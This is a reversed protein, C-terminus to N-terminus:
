LLWMIVLSGISIWLEIDKFWYSMVNGGSQPLFPPYPDQSTTPSANSSSSTQGTFAIPPPKITFGPTTITPPTTALISGSTTTTSRSWRTTTSNLSEGSCFLLLVITCVDYVNTITCIGM